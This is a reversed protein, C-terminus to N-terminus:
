RKSGWKVMGGKWTGRLMRGKQKVLPFRVTWDRYRDNSVVRLGHRKAYSLIVEDAGVGKDVVEIQRAPVKCIRAMASADMFHGRLKYGVNADFIVQPRLGKAVLDRLVAALVKESPDGGWFMVNSGDVVIRKGAPKQDRPRKRTVAIVLVLIIAPLILWVM